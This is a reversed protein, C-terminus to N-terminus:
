RGRWPDLETGGVGVPLLGVRRQQAGQEALQVQNAGKFFGHQLQGAFAQHM